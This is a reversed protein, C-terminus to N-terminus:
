ALASRVGTMSAKIKVTFLLFACQQELFARGCRWGPASSSECVAPGFWAISESRLTGAGHRRSAAGARNWTGVQRHATGHRATGHSRVPGSDFEAGSETGCRTNILLNESRFQLAPPCRRPASSRCHRCLGAPLAAVQGRRAAAPPALRAAPQEAAGVGRRAEEAGPRASTRERM